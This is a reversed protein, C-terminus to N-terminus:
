VVGTNSACPSRASNAVSSYMERVGIISPNTINLFFGSKLGYHNKKNCIYKKTTSFEDRIAIRLTVHLICYVNPKKEYSYM